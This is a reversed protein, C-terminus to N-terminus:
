VAKFLLQNLIKFNTSFTQTDFKKMDKLVYNLQRYLTNFKHLPFLVKCDKLKTFVIKDIMSSKADILQYYTSM